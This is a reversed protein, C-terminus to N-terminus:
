GHRTTSSTKRSLPNLTPASRKHPSRESETCSSSKWSAVLRNTWRLATSRCSLCVTEDAVRASAVMATLLLMLPPLRLRTAGRPLLPLPPPLLPVGDHTLGDHADTPGSWPVLWAADAPNKM